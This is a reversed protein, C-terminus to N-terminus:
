PLALTSSHACFYLALAEMRAVYMLKKDKPLTHEIHVVHPSVSMIFTAGEPVRM